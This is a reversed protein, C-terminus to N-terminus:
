SVNEEELIPTTPTEEVVACDPCLGEDNLENNLMVVNCTGCIGRCSSCVSEGSPLRELCGSCCLDSCGDCSTLCNGCRTEECSRCSSACSDCLDSECGRCYSSEERRIRGNCDGCSLGDWEDLQVYASRPNYTTLVSRIMVFADSIRGEELARQMPIAADGACLDGDNLHPHTVEDRGVAPNPELPVIDFCSSGKQNALRTWHLEIAFPGLEVDKLTVPETKVRLVSRKHDFTYGTFEEELSNLEQLWDGLGPEKTPPNRVDRLAQIARTLEDLKWHLDEQLSALCHQFGRDYAVQLQRNVTHLHDWVRNATGWQYEFNDRQRRGLQWAEHLRQALRVLTRLSHM